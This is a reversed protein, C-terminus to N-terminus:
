QKIKKREGSPTVIIYIGTALNLEQLSKAEGIRIGSVDFAEFNGNATDAAATEIGDMISTFCWSNFLFTDSGANFLM